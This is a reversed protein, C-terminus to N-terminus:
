TGVSARHLDSGGPDTFLLPTPTPGKASDNGSELAAVRPSDRALRPVHLDCGSPDIYLLPALSWHERHLLLVLLCAVDVVTSSFPLV